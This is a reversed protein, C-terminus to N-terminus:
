VLEYKNIGYFSSNNNSTTINVLTSNSKRSLMEILFKGISLKRKKFDLNSVKKKSFYGVKSNFDMGILLIEKALYHDALFLCRDGDTFGGFNFINRLPFLQSTGIVNRFRPVLESIKDINDGHAHIVMVSGKKDANILSELDGDLDTVVFDPIIGLDLCLESAGDAAIIVVVEAEAEIAGTGTSCNCSDVIFKQVISEEISPGAGIVLTKSNKLKNFCESNKHSKKILNSLILSSIFDRRTNIELYKAIALYYPYWSSFHM